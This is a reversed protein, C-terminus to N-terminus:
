TLDVFLQRIESLKERWSKPRTALTFLPADKEGRLRESFRIERCNAKVAQEVDIPNAGIEKSIGKYTRLDFRRDSLARKVDSWLSSDTSFGNIGEPMM